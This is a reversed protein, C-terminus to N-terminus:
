FYLVLLYSFANNLILLIVIINNDTDYDHM